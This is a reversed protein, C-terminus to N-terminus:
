TFGEQKMIWEIRNALYDIYDKRQNFHGQDYARIYLCTNADEAVVKAIKFALAQRLVSGSGPRVFRKTFVRPRVNNLEKPLGDSM